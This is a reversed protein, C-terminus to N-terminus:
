NDATWTSVRVTGCRVTELHHREGANAPWARVLGNRVLHAVTM